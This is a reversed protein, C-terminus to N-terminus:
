EFQYRYGYNLGAYSNEVSENMCIKELMIPMQIM